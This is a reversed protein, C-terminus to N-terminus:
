PLLCHTTGCDIESGEYGPGNDNRKADDCGTEEDIRNHFTGSSCNPAPQGRRREQRCKDIRCDDILFALRQFINGSDNDIGGRALVNALTAHLQFRCHGLQLSAEFDHFVCEVHPRDTDLM